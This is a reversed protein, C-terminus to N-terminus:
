QHFLQRHVEKTFHNGYERGRFSQVWRIGRIANTLFCEDASEVDEVSISTETITYRDRLKEIICRRMVGAVCGQDLSPTFLSNGKIIFINAISTDAVTGNSNLVICDDFGNATAFRGAQAYVLASTSKLNAYADPSKFADEFIGLSWGKDPLTSLAETTERCEVVYATANEHSKGPYATLRIRGTKSCNNEMALQSIGSQLRDFFGDPVPWKLLDLSHLFREKHLDFRLIEGKEMRMTEFIGEGLRFARNSVPLVAENEDRLIGNVLIKSM